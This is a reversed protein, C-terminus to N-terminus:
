SLDQLLGIVPVRRSEKSHVSQVHVPGPAEAEGVRIGWLLCAGMMEQKHEGPVCLGLRLILPLPCLHWRSGPRM